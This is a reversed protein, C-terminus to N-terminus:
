QAFALPLVPAPRPVTNEARALNRVLERVGIAQAKRVLAPDADLIVAADAIRVGEFISLVVVVRRFVDIALLARELQANTTHPRLSWGQPAAASSKVSARMTRHAAQALEARIAGLSKAM